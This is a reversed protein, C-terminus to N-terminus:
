TSVGRILNEKRNYGFQAAKGEREDCNKGENYYSPSVLHFIFFKDAIIIRGYMRRHHLGHRAAVFLISVAVPPDESM